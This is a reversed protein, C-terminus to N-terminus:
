FKNFRNILYNNINNYHYIIKILTNQTLLNNIKTLDLINNFKHFKFINIM